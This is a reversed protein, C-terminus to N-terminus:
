DCQAVRTVCIAESDWMGVCGQLIVCVVDCEHVCLVVGWCVIITLSLSDGNPPLDHLLAVQSPGLHVTM